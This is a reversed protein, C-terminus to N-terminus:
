AHFCSLSPVSESCFSTHLLISFKNLSIEAKCSVSLALLVCMWVFVSLISLAFIMEGEQAQFLRASLEKQVMAM